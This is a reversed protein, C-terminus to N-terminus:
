PGPLFEKLLGAIATILWLLITALYIAIEAETKGWGKNGSYSNMLVDIEKGVARGSADTRLTLYPKELLGPKELQNIMSYPGANDDPVNLDEQEKKRKELVAAQKRFAISFQIHRKGWRFIFWTIAAGFFGGITIAMAPLKLIELWMILVSVGSVLPVIWLLRFRTEETERIKQCIERYLAQDDLTRLNVNFNENKM